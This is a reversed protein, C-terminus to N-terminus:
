ALGVVDRSPNRVGPKRVPKKDAKVPLDLGLLARLVQEDTKSGSLRMEGEAIEAAMSRLDKTPWATAKLHSMQLTSSGAEVAAQLAKVMWIKLLGVCGVSGEYLREWQRDLDGCKVPTNQTLTALVDRFADIDGARRPDYRRFHVDRTRRTLQANLDRFDLLRYTGALVILVGTADALSKLFELQTVRRSPSINLGIHHGEDILLVRVERNRIASELAVRAAPTTVRQRRMALAVEDISARWTLSEIKSDILPERLERLSSM